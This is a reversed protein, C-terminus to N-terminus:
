LEYSPHLLAYGMVNTKDSLLKWGHYIANDARGHNAMYPWAFESPNREAGGM